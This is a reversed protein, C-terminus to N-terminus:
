SRGVASKSMSRTSGVGTVAFLMVAIFLAVRESLACCKSVLRTQTQQRTIESKEHTFFFFFFPVRSPILITQNVVGSKSLLLTLANCLNM